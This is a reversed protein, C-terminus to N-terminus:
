FSSFAAGKDGTGDKLSPRVELWTQHLIPFCSEVFHPWFEIDGVDDSFSGVLGTSM